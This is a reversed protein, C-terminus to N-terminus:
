LLKLHALYCNLMEVGQKEKEVKPQINQVNM